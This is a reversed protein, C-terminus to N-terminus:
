ARSNEEHLDDFIQTLTNGSYPDTNVKDMIQNILTQRVIFRTVENAQNVLDDISRNATLDEICIRYKSTQM